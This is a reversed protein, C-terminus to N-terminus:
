HSYVLNGGHVRQRATNREEGAVTAGRSAYVGQENGEAVTPTRPAPRPNTGLRSRELSRGGRGWVRTGVRWRRCDVEGTGQGWRGRGRCMDGRSGIGAGGGCGQGRAQERAEKRGRECEGTQSGIRASWREQM